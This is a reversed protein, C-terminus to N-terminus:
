PFGGSGPYQPSQKPCFLKLVALTPFTLIPVHDGRQQGSSTTFLLNLVSMNSIVQMASNQGEHESM